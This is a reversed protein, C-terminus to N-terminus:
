CPKPGLGHHLQCELVGAISVPLVNDVAERADSPHNDTNRNATGGQLAAIIASGVTIPSRDLAPCGHVVAPMDSM